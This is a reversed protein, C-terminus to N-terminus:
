VVVGSSDVWDVGSWWIPKVLDTDFYEEGIEPNPTRDATIGNVPPMPLFLPAKEVVVNSGIWRVNDPTRVQGSPAFLFESASLNIRSTATAADAGGLVSFNYFEFVGHDANDSFGLLFTIGTVYNPHITAGAVTTMPTTSLTIWTVSNRNSEQELSYQMNAVGAIADWVLRVWIPGSFIPLPLDTVQTKISDSTQFRFSLRGDPLNIILVRRANTAFLVSDVAPRTNAALRIAADFYTETGDWESSATFMEITKSNISDIEIKYQEEPKQLSLKDQSFTALDLQIHGGPVNNFIDPRRVHESGDIWAVGYPSNVIINDGTVTGKSTSVLIAAKVHEQLTGSVDKGANVITNGVCTINEVDENVITGILIASADCEYFKNRTFLVNRSGTVATLGYENVDYFTNDSVVGGEFRRCPMMDGFTGNALGATAQSDPKGQIVNNTITPNIYKYAVNNGRISIPHFPTMSDPPHSIYNGDLVPDHMVGALEIAPRSCRESINNIYRPRISTQMVDQHRIVFGANTVRCDKMLLDTTDSRVFAIMSQDESTANDGFIECNICGIRKTGTVGAQIDFMGRSLLTQVTNDYIVNKMYADTVDNENIRLISSISGLPKITSNKFDVTINSKLSIQDAANAAWGIQSGTPVVITGGGLSEAYDVAAQFAPRDNTTGDLVAGFERVDIEAPYLKNGDVINGAPDELEVTRVHGPDSRLRVVRGSSKNGWVYGTPSLDDEQPELDPRTPHVQDAAAPNSM